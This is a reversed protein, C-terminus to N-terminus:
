MAISWNPIVAGPSLQCATSSPVTNAVPRQRDVRTTAEDATAVRDAGGPHPHQEVDRLLHARLCTAVLHVARRVAAVSFMPPLAVVVTENTTRASTQAPPGAPDPFYAARDHGRDREETRGAREGFLRQEALGIERGTLADWERRNGVDQRGDLPAVVLETHHRDLVGDLPGHRDGEVREDELVVEEDSALDVQRDRHVEEGLGAGGQALDRGDERIRVRDRLAPHPQVLLQRVGLDDGRVRGCFCGLPDGARLLGALGRDAVVEGRADVAQLPERGLDLVVRLVLGPEDDDARPDRRRATVVLGADDAELPGVTRPRQEPDELLEGGTRQVQALELAARRLLAEPVVAEEDVELAVDGVLEHGVAQAGERRLLRVHLEEARIGDGALGRVRPAGTRALRPPIGRVPDLLEARLHPPAHDVDLSQAILRLVPTPDFALADSGAQDVLHERRFVARRVHRFSTSSSRVRCFAADFSIPLDAGSSRGAFIAAAAASFSSSAASSGASAAASAVSRSSARCTGFGASADTGSPPSSSPSTTCPRRRAAPRVM